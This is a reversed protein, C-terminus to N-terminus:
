LDSLDNGLVLPCLTGAKNSDTGTTLPHSAPASENAKQQNLLHPNFTRATREM